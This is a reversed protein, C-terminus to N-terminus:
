GLWLEKIYKTQYFPIFFKWADKEEIVGLKLLRIIHLIPRYIVIYLLLFTVFWFSGYFQSILFVLYLPVIALMWFGIRNLWKDEMM